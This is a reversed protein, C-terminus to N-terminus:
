IFDGALNVEQWPRSPNARLLFIKTDQKSLTLLEVNSLPFLLPYLAATLPCRVKLIVNGPYRLVDYTGETKGEPRLLYYYHKM